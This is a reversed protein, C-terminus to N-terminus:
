PPHVEFHRALRHNRCLERDMNPVVRHDIMPRRRFHFDGQEASEKTAARIDIRTTKFTSPSPDFSM